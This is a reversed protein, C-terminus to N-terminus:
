PGEEVLRPPKEQASYHAYENTESKLTVYTGLPTLAVEEVIYQPDVYRGGSKYRELARSAAVTPALDLLILKTHYGAEKLLGIFTSLKKTDRGVMLLVMSEQEIMCQGVLQMEVYSSEQHYAAALHPVFGPLRGKIEDNDVIVCGHVETKLLTSLFRNKGSAPPGIVIVARPKKEPRIGKRMIAVIELHLSLRAQTYLGTKPDCFRHSTPEIELKRRAATVM